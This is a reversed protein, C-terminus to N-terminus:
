MFPEKASLPWNPTQTILCAGAGWINHNVPKPASIWARWEYTQLDAEHVIRAKLKEHWHFYLAEFFAVQLIRWFDEAVNWLSSNPLSTHARDKRKLISVVTRASSAAPPPHLRCSYFGFAWLHNSRLRGEKQEWCPVCTQWSTKYGATENNPM